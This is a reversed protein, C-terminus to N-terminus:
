EKGCGHIDAILGSFAKWLGKERLCLTGGGRGMQSPTRNIDGVCVWHTGRDRGVAWKAHDHEYSFSVGMERFRVGLVDEVRFPTECAPDDSPLGNRWTEVILSTQLSPAVLDAYLEKNWAGSKGFAVGEVGGKTKLKKSVYQSGKSKPAHKGEAVMSLVPFRVALSRPVTAGFVHVGDHFLTAGVDEATSAADLTVCLFTQGYVHGSHPYGYSQNLFPPYKPVSHLMWFGSSDSGVAVVGKAHAQTFHEVGDPGADDYLVSLIDGDDKADYVPRLTRGPFSTPDAISKASLQWKTTDPSESSIYAYAVGDKLHPVETKADAGKPLKYLAFWDVPQGDEDLCQLPPKKESANTLNLLFALLFAKLRM